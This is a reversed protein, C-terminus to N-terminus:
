PLDEDLDDKLGEDEFDDEFDNDFLDLVGAKVIELRVSLAVVTGDNLELTDVFEVLEVRTSAFGVTAFWLDLSSM